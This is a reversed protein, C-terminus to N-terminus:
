SRRLIREADSRLEALRSRAEGADLRGSAEDLEVEEIALLADQRADEDRRLATAQAAGTVEQHRLLPWLLFPLSLVLLVSAWILSV